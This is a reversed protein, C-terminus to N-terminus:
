KPASFFGRWIWYIVGVLMWFGASMAAFIGVAQLLAENSLSRKRAEGERDIEYMRAGIQRQESESAAARLRNDLDSYNNRKYFFHMSESISRQAEDWQYWTAGGAFSLWLVLLLRRVGKAINM